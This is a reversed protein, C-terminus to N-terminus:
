EYDEPPREPRNRGGGGGGGRKRVFPYVVAQLIAAAAAAPEGAEPVKDFIPSDPSYEREAFNRIVEGANEATYEAAAAGAVRGSLRNLLWDAAPRRAGASVRRLIFAFPLLEVLGSAVGYKGALEAADDKSLGFLPKDAMIGRSDTLLGLPVDHANAAAQDAKEATAGYRVNDSANRVARHM